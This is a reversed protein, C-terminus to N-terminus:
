KGRRISTRYLLRGTEDVAQVLLSDRALSLALFGPGRTAFRTGVTGPVKSKSREGGGGSILFHVGPQDARAIHELHHEHGCIYATVGYKKMLPVLLREMEPIRTREGGSYVNHHGAIFKWTATSAKLASDLWARQKSTQSGAFHYKWPALRYEDIFPSSDIIFFEATTGDALTKSVAYYRAPMRWRRSTASHDVEAQASGHYDHNGLAVFWDIALSPATYVDEFSSRWQPDSVSRVGDPYFNDGTVLVFNAGIAAATVGMQSAVERQPSVGEHGWDGMALFNLAGKAPVALVMTDRQQARATTATTGAVALLVIGLARRVAHSM